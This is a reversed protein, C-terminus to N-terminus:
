VLGEYTCAYGQESNALYTAFRRRSQRRRCSIRSRPFSILPARVIRICPVVAFNRSLTIRHSGKSARRHAGLTDAADCAPLKTAGRDMLQSSAFTALQMRMYANRMETRLWYHIIGTLMFICSPLIMISRPFDSTYRNSCRNRWGNNNCM